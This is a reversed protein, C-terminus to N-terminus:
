HPRYKSSATPLVTCSPINSKDIGHKAIGAIHEAVVIGEHSAVHALLPPGAVDGIAYISEASTKGFEDVVIFGKDTKVGVTELGLNEINGQVGVAMLAIDAKLEKKGKNDSVM